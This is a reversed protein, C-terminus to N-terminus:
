SFAHMIQESIGNIFLCVVLYVVAAAAAAAVVVKDDTKNFLL